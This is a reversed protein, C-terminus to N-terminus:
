EVVVVGKKKVDSTGGSLEEGLVLDLVIGLPKRALLVLDAVGEGPIKEQVVITNSGHEGV